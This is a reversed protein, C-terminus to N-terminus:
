SACFEKPPRPTLAMMPADHELADTGAAWAAATRRTGMMEGAEVLGANLSTSANGYKRRVGGESENTVLAM